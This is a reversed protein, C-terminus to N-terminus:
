IAASWRACFERHDDLIAPNPLRAPRFPSRMIGPRGTSGIEPRGDADGLPHQPVLFALAVHVVLFGVIVVM